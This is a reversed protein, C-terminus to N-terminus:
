YGNETLIRMATTPPEFLLKQLVDEPVFAVRAALEYFGNENCWLQIVDRLEEEDM